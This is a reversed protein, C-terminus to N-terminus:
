PAASLKSTRWEIACAAPNLGTSAHSHGSPNSVKMATAATATSASCRLRGWLVGQYGHTSVANAAPLEIASL